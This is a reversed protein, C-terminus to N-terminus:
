PRVRMYSYSATATKGATGSWTVVRLRGAPAGSLAASLNATVEVPVTSSTSVHSGPVVSGPGGGGIAVGDVDILEANAASSGDSTELQIAFTITGSVSAWPFDAVRQPTGSGLQTSVVGTMIPVDRHVRRIAQNIEGTSGYTADSETGEGSCGVEDGFISPVFFKATATLAASPQLNADLGGNVRCALIAATGQGLATTSVTSGYLGSTVLTYDSVRSTEDTSAIWWEVQRVGAVSDLTATVTGNAAVSLKVLPAQSPFAFAPSAQPM